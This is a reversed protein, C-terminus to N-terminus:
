STEPSRAAEEELTELHKLWSRASKRSGDSKAAQEFATRAEALRDSKANSIGLMFYADGPNDLDGKKLASDLATRAQSWDQEELYVRALKLYVEGDEAMAAAKALPQIARKYERAHLLSDGLLEWAESDDEITGNALGETMVEAALHPVEHYLYLYSLNRLETDKDLYGQRYSLEMVALAKKDEGLESYVGQLQQLYTKKPEHDILASLVQACEEYEELEFHLALLLQRWSANFKESNAVALKMYPLAERAQLLQAHAAGILYYAGPRPNEVQTLWIELHDIAKQFKELAMYLQALNYRMNQLSSEPLYDTALAKEINVAAKDYQTFATYFFGFSEYITAKEFDTLRKRGELEALMPIAESFKEESVLEHITTMKKFVVPTLVFEKKQKLRSKSKKGTDTESRASDPILVANAGTLILPIILLATALRRTLEGCRIRSIKRAQAPESVRISKM